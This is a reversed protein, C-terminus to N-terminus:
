RFEKVTMGNDKWYTENKKYFERVGNWDIYIGLSYPKRIGPKRGEHKLWHEKLKLPTEWFPTEDM